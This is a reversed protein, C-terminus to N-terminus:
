KGFRKYFNKVHEELRDNFKEQAKWREDTRTCADRVETIAAECALVRKAISHNGPNGPNGNRKRRYYPIGDRLAAYLVIGIVSSVIGPSHDTLGALAALWEHDLIM